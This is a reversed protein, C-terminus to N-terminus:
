INKLNPTYCDLEILLNKGTDTVWIETSSDLSTGNYTILGKDRLNRLRLKMSDHAPYTEFKSIEALLGIEESNTSRLLMQSLLSFTQIKQNDFTKDGIQVEMEGFKAMKTSKAVDFLLNRLLILQQKYVIALIGVIAVSAVTQRDQWISYATIVLLLLFTAIDRIKM